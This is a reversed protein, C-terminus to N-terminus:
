GLLYNFFTGYRKVNVKVTKLLLGTLHQAKPALHWNKPPPLPDSERKVKGRQLHAGLLTGNQRLVLLKVVDARYYTELTLRTYQRLTNREWPHWYVQNRGKCLWAENELSVNEQKLILRVMFCFLIFFARFWLVINWCGWSLSGSWVTKLHPECSGFM